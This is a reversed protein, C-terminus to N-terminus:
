SRPLALRKGALTLALSALTLWVEGPAQGKIQEDAVQAERLLAELRRAGQRQLARSVLPRRKDWVPPKVQTFARELPTGSEQLHALNALLRLERALAWLVVAAEVGEGRLGELIRLAHEADGVLAADLLGFVDYRASDAVSARVTEADVQSGEILLRLKEIEQAAALLNGEVREAILEVAEPTAALGLRSLRQNIWQPLQALEVPWIQM